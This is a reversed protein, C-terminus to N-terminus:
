VARRSGNVMQMAQVLLGNTMSSPAPYKLLSLREDKRDPGVKKASSAKWECSPKLKPSASAKPASGTPCSATRTQEFM